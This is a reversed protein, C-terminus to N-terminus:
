ELFNMLDEQVMEFAMETDHISKFGEM